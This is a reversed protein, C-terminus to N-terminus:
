EGVTIFVPNSYFWLDDWPNEGPPDPQPELQQTNTGRVRVYLDARVDRIVTEMSVYRGDPRWEDRAFRHIVRTSPNVDLALDDAPGTVAGSILDVREVAPDDGGANLVSPDLFRVTVRVDSGSAVKLTGGIGATQEGSESEVNVYLETVLDGTAVFVHGGRLRELVDDYDPRAHVYTKSYEGPWFDDGDESYHDHSDSTSTISWRRGEGLMSDWFGGVKAALVDFGGLTPYQDYDGRYDDERPAGDPRLTQAQHGPAGEMGAVVEPATDHWARIEHPSTLGYDQAGTCSRCPHNVILVPQDQLSQMETLAELMREETDRAPDKPYADRRAYAKELEYMVDAEDATKPVILTAHKAGPVDLESGYFQLVGPVAKRSAVLRPYAEDRSFASRNPGGHDTVVMWKLGYRDAARAMQELPYWADKGIQPAPPDVSEDWGVSYQTHLHHDGALWQRDEPEKAGCGALILCALAISYKAIMPRDRYMSASNPVFTKKCM